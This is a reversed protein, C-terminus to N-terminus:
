ITSITSKDPTEADVEPDISNAIRTVEEFMLEASERHAKARELLQGVDRQLWWSAGLAIFSLVTLMVTIPDSFTV